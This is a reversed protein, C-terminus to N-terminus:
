LTAGRHTPGTERELHPWQTLWLDAHPGIREGSLSLKEANAISDLWITRAGLIRGMRLAFFGPAAGTSLIVDPRERRLLRFIAWASKLLAWKNWRNADPIVRLTYGPADVGYAGDVTALVVEHGEFAPLVRLMQVWHGGGSAIALVKRSETTM